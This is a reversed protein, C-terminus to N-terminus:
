AILWQVINEYLGFYPDCGTVNGGHILSHDIDSGGILYKWPNERM